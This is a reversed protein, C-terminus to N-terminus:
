EHHIGGFMVHPMVALQDQIAAVLHPHNYGHCATWWSAMGDILKRGDELILSVGDTAVVPLPLPSTQMQTYPMWVRGAAEAQWSPPGVPQAPRDGALEDHNM